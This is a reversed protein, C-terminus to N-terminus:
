LGLAASLDSRIADLRGAAAIRAADVGGPEGEEVPVV